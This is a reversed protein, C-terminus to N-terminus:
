SVDWGLESSKVAGVWRLKKRHSIYRISSTTSLQSQLVDCAHNWTTFCLKDFSVALGDICWQIAEGYLQLRECSSAGISPLNFAM